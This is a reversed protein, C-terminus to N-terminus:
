VDTIDMWIYTNYTGPVANNKEWLLESYDLIQLLLNMNSWGYQFVYIYQYDPLFLM